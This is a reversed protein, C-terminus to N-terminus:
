ASNAYSLYILGKIHSQGMIDNNHTTELTLSSFGEYPFSPGGPHWTELVTACWSCASIYLHLMCWVLAWVIGGGLAHYLYLKPGTHHINALNLEDAVNNNIHFYTYCVDSSRRSSSVEM